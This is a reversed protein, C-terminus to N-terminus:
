PALPTTSSAELARITEAIVPQNERGINYQKLM